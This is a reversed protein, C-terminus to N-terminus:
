QFLIGNFQQFKDCVKTITKTNRYGGNKATIILCPRKQIFVRICKFHKLSTTQHTILMLLHTQNFYPILHVSHFHTFFLIRVFARGYVAVAPQIRTTVVTSPAMRALCKMHRKNWTKWFCFCVCEFLVSKELVTDHRSKRSNNQETNNNRLLNTRKRM